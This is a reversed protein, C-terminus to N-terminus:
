LQFKLTLRWSRGPMPYRAIVQYQKNFINDIDFSAEWRHSFLKLSRRLSLGAEVYGDIRTDLLNSNTAFRSSVGIAKVVIDVWPNIYAVSAGGSNLPIYAVQKGYEASTRDTLPKSRQYSYNVNWELKHGTAPVMDAAMTIDVGTARVKDLNVMTWVFMNYPVGVIMDDVNNLYADATLSLKPLWASPALDLTTGINFQRTTEPRLDTSGYHFFYSESFTPVRFISKFSARLRWERSAMPQFSVSASPSLRHNDRAEDGYHVRNLYISGLLSATATFRGTRYRGTLAQLITYRIPGVEQPLNSSLNGYAFDAAYNFALRDAPLWLLAGSAYAERQFYDQDLRGGPYHGNVDDYLSAEWNFKGSLKLSLTRSLTGKWSAQAFANRERLKENCQSNYYIVPGPLQRGNDYYYIKAAFLSKNGTPWTLNIEGHGSNMLSNRRRERSSYIGNRLTFPYDNLAHTFEGIFGVALGDARSAGVNVFPNLLGFSGVRMQATLWLSDADSVMPASSLRLSSASALTRAPHFIDDNDGIVLSISGLNDLSYRSLDVEGSRNNSLTVGDYVVGTHAAGFSRVSVTKMGGAGGYDKLNIGPLRKLASSIDTAGMAKLTSSGLAFQPATSRDAKQMVAEVTVEPLARIGSLSDAAASVRNLSDPVEGAATAVSCCVFCGALAMARVSAHLITTSVLSKHIRM